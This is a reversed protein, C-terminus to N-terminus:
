GRPVEFLITLDTKIKGFGVMKPRIWFIFVSKLASELFGPPTRIKLNLHSVEMDHIQSITFTQKGSPQRCLDSGACRWPRAYDAFSKNALNM